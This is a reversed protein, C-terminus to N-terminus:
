RCQPGQAPLVQLPRDRQWLRKDFHDGRCVGLRAVKPVVNAEEQDGNRAVKNTKLNIRVQSQSM